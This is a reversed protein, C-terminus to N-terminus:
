KIQPVTNLITQKDFYKNLTFLKRKIPRKLTYLVAIDVKKGKKQWIRHPVFVM